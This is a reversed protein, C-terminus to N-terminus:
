RQRLLRRCEELKHPHPSIVLRQDLCTQHGTNRPKLHLENQGLPVAESYLYSTAHVVQYRMRDLNVDLPPRTGTTM